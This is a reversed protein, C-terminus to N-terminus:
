LGISPWEDYDGHFRVSTSQRQHERKGTVREGREPDWEAFFSHKRNVTLKPVYSEPRRWQKQSPKNNTGNTTRTKDRSERRM